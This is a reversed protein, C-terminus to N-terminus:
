SVPQSVNSGEPIDVPTALAQALAPDSWVEAAAQWSALLNEFATFRGVEACARLVALCEDAFRIKEDEPLFTVWPLDDGLGDTVVRRVDARSFARQFMHAAVAVAHRDSEVRRLPSIVFTPKGARRELIVEDNMEAAEDLVRAYDRVFTAISM